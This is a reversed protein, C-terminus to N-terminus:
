LQAGATWLDKVQQETWGQATAFAQVLPHDIQFEQAGSLLMEAAFREEETPMANIMTQMSAPISGIRVADLAEQNTIANVSALAQYFQRRTIPALTPTTVPIPPPAEVITLLGTDVLQKLARYDQNGLDSPLWFQVPGQFGGLTEGAALEVHISNNLGYTAQM